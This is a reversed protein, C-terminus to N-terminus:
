NSCNAADIAIVILLGILENADDLVNISYTDGWHFLEKSITMIVKNGSVVEYDWGFTNGEIRWDNFELQYKPRFLSFEKKIKGLYQGGIEIEFAPLFTLLKQRICGVEENFRNYVHIVHGISFVEAKVFYKAEGFEDYIDYTDSWSFVRQKILLKMNVEKGYVNFYGM